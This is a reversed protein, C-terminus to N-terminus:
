FLLLKETNNDNCIAKTMKKNQVERVTEVKRKTTLPTDINKETVRSPMDASTEILPQFTNEVNFVKDLPEPNSVNNGTTKLDSYLVKITESEPINLAQKTIDQLLTFISTLPKEHTECHKAALSISFAIDNTKM